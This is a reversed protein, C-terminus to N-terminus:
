RTRQRTSALPRRDDNFLRRWDGKRLDRVLGETLLPERILEIYARCADENSYSTLDFVDPTLAYDALLSM